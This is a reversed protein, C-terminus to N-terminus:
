CNTQALNIKFQLLDSNYDLIIKVKSASKLGYLIKEGSFKTIKVKFNFKSDEEQLVLSIQDYLRTDFCKIFFILREESEQCM